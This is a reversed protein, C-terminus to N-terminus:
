EWMENDATAGFLGLIVSPFADENLRVNPNLIRAQQFCRRANDERGKLYWAAGAFVWAEVQQPVSADRETVLRDAIRIVDDYRFEQYATRVAASLAVVGSMREERDHARANEKLAPSVSSPAFQPRPGPSVGSPRTAHSSRVSPSEVPQRREVAERPQRRSDYHRASVSTTAPTSACGPGLLVLLLFLISCGRTKM